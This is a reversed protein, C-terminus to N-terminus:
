NVEFQAAASASPHDGAIERLIWMVDGIIQNYRLTTPNYFHSALKVETPLLPPCMQSTQGEDGETMIVAITTPGSLSKNQRYYVQRRM